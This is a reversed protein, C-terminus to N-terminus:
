TWWGTSLRSFQCRAGRGGRAARPTADRVHRFELVPQTGVEGRRHLGPVLQARPRQPHQDRRNLAFFHGTRCRTLQGVGVDELHEGPLRPLAALGGLDVNGVATALKGGVLACLGAHDVVVQRRLEVVILHGIDDVGGDGLDGLLDTFARVHLVHAQHHLRGGRDGVALGVPRPERCRHLFPELGLRSRYDPRRFGTAGILHPTARQSSTLVEVVKAGSTSRLGVSASQSCVDSNCPTLKPWKSCASVYSTARLKIASSPATTTHSSSATTPMAAYKSKANVTGPPATTGIAPNLMTPTAGVCRRRPTSRAMYTSNCWRMASAPYGSAPRVALSPPM